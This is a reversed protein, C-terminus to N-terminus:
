GGRFSFILLTSAWDLLYAGKGAIDIAEHTFRAGPDAFFRTYGPRDVVEVIVRKEVYKRETSWKEKVVIFIAIDLPIPAAFVPPVLEDLDASSPSIEDNMRGKVQTEVEKTRMARRYCVHQCM